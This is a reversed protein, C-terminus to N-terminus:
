AKPPGPPTSDAAPLNADAPALPLPSHILSAPASFIDSPLPHNCNHPCPLISSAYTGFDTQSGTICAFHTALVPIISSAQILVAQQRLIPPRGRSRRRLHRSPPPSPSFRVPFISRATSRSSALFGPKQQSGLRDNHTCYPPQRFTCWSRSHIIVLSPGPQTLVFM